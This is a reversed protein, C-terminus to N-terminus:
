SYILIALMWLRRDIAAFNPHATRAIGIEKLFRFEACTGIRPNPNQSIAAYKSKMKEVTSLKIKV